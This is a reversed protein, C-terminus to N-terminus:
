SNSGSSTSGGSTGGPSNKAIIEAAEKAQQAQFNEHEPALAVVQDAFDSIQLAMLANERSYPLPKGGFEIGEWGLLIHDVMTELMIERQKGEPVTTGRYPRLRAAFAAQHDPNNIRAIHLKADGFQVWVGERELKPDTKFSELKM